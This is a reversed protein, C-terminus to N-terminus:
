ENTSNSSQPTPPQPDRGRCAIAAVPISLLVGYFINSFIGQIAMQIPTFTIDGTSDLIKQDANNQKLFEITQNVANAILDPPAMYRYYIYHMLSVILAAFTYLLVGFQWAHFFGIQGGAMQRYRLTFRYAIFPVLTSFGLYVSSMTPSTAGLIFFIYKIVWFLGMAFGFTMAAKVLLNKNEEM